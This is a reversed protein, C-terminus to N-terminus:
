TTLYNNNVAKNKSSYNLRYQWDDLNVLIRKKLENSYYRIM